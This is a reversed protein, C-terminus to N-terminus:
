CDKFDMIIFYIFLSSSLIINLINKKFEYKSKNIILKKTIKNDNTTINYNIKKFHKLINNSPIRPLYLAIIIEDKHKSVFHRFMNFFDKKSITQNYDSILCKVNINDDHINVSIIHVLFSRENNPPQIYNSSQIIAVQEISISSLFIFLHLTM